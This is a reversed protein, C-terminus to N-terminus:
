PKAESNTPQPKQSAVLEARKTTTLGLIGSISKTARWRGYIVGVFSVVGAADILVQHQTVHIGFKALIACIFLVVGSAITMSMAGDKSGNM